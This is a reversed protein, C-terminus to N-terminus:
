SMMSYRRGRKRFADDGGELIECVRTCIYPDELGGAIYNINPLVQPSVREAFAVIVQDSDTNVVLNANHTVMIIQRRKAADLFFPVLDAYVSRPDLNEEPQDIILPRQDWEDLGLYLMLLVVGKTGPSLHAIEVGEYYIGYRVSIHDTSFIWQGYDLPTKGQALAAIAGQSHKEIFHEMANRIDTPSGFEWANLLESRAIELLGRKGQFPQKRLDLLSEGHSVWRNIDIFRRVVFSLKTLRADSEIRKRLPGYLSNLTDMERLLLNFVEEYRTLRESVRKKRRDTAGEANLLDKRALEEAKKANKLNRDLEMRRKVNAQDLGLAEILQSNLATLEILGKGVADAPPSSPGGLGPVAPDSPLRGRERLLRVNQQVSREVNLIESESDTPLQLTFKNWVTSELLDPYKVRLDSIAKNSILLQRQIEAKVQSLQQLRREQAAVESKLTNLEIEVASQAKIKAEDVHIPLASIQSEINTRNRETDKFKGRYTEVSQQLQIENAIQRTLGAVLEQESEKAATIEELMFTRLDNFSNCEYRDEEPIASFVVREIEEVLTDALAMPTCLTEVFRQSLYKVRPQISENIDRPISAVDPDGNSWEIEIEVGNLLDGAKSMFSAPGPEVEGAGTGYAILDALATKGSGKSGIITVLGDNLRLEPNLLWPANKMRILRIKPYSTAPPSDGIYVRRDPIVLTQRLGEFTPEARIWCRRNEKPELVDSLQHADSGHLCPKPEQGNQAFDEHNGLWYSRDSPNSSFIINAFRGLEERQARFSADKAIGALGDNGAAVATLVNERFWSDTEILTRIDNLEVKFQNAGTSLAEYETLTTRGVHAQGLRRLSEDTCYYHEGKYKFKLQSLREETRQIHDPDNPCILLHLNIGRREKTEITLRLEVNPFILPILLSKGKIRRQFEKYGRLTFYDTIGIAQPKPSAQELKQLFQEWDNGYQDNRLTGPVHIHPDWRQWSSGVSWKHATM